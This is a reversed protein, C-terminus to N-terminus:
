DSVREASSASRQGGLRGLLGSLTAIEESDFREGVLSAVSTAHVEGAAVLRARGAPTLVAFSVRGDSPSSESVVLGQQELGGLLRTVGSPTLMLREALDVRKLKGGARELYQLAEFDNITLGFERALRGSFERALV